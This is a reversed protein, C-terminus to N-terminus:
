NIVWGFVFMGVWGAGFDLCFVCLCCGLGRGMRFVIASIRRSFVFGFFFFV